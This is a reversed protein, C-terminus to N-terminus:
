ILTVFGVCTETNNRSRYRVLVTLFLQFASQFSLECTRSVACQLAFSQADYLAIQWADLVPYTLPLPTRSM